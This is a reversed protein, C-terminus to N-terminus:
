KNVESHTEVAPSVLISYCLESSMTNYMNLYTHTQTRFYILYSSLPVPCPPILLGVTLLLHVRGTQPRSADVTKGLELFCSPRRLREWYNPAKNNNKNTSNIQKYDKLHFIKNKVSFLSIRSQNTFHQHTCDLFCKEKEIIQFTSFFRYKREKM